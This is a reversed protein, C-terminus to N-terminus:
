FWLRLGAVFALEADRGERKLWRAGVYPAVERRVEYRLRLGATLDSTGSDYADLEIEPRLVLRQTILLDRDVEVRLATRGQEGVYVNAAVEIFGPALGAIGFSAWDRSGPGTDHRVGARMSWWRSVVREWQLETRSHTPSGDSEAESEGESEVRIKDVDGGYWAAVDWGFTGGEADRWELEDLMVKGFPARDDMGMMVAMEHDSMAHVQTQPPDPPVHESAYTDDAICALPAGGLLAALLWGRASM